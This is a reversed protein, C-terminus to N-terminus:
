PFRGTAALLNLRAQPLNTEGNSVVIGIAMIIGM